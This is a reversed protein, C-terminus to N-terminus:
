QANSSSQFDRLDTIHFSRILRRQPSPCMRHSSFMFSMPIDVIRPFAVLIPSKTQGFGLPVYTAGLAVNHDIFYSLALVSTM